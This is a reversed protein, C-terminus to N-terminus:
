EAVLEFLVYIKPPLQPKDHCRGDFGFVAKEIFPRLPEIADFALSFRGVKDAHLYGISPHAGRAALAVALRGSTVSFAVNLLANLPHTARRKTRAERHTRSRAPPPAKWQPPIRPSGVRWRLAPLDPWALRAAQAEAIMAEQVSRANTAAKVFRAADSVSLAGARASNAIKAQVISAAIPLPDASAQARLMAASLSSRLPTVTMLERM